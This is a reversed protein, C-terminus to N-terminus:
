RSQPKEHNEETMWAFAPIKGEILGRGRGEVDLENNVIM